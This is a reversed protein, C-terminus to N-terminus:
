ENSRQKSQEVLAGMEVLQVRGFEAAKDAVNAIRMITELSQYNLGIRSGSSSIHWQTQCQLFLRVAEHNEPEVNFDQADDELFEIPM